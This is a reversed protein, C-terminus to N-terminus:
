VIQENRILKIINNKAIDTLKQGGCCGEMAELASRYVPSRYADDHCDSAIFHVLGEALLVRAWDGKRELFFETRNESKDAKGGLGGKGFIGLLGKKQEQPEEEDSDSANATKPAGDLFSRCNIQVAAGQNVLDHVAEIDGELCRYRELHAIVPRYGKWLMERICKYIRDLSDHTSFEVLAHSTGGLTPLEGRELSEICGDTYYIEGGLILRLGPTIEGALKQTEKFVEKAEGLTLGPNRIGFHPTAVIVRIGEEYATRLMNATQETSQSGDDIGPLIHTHMDMYPGKPIM